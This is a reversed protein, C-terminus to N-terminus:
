SEALGREGRGPEARRSERHRDIWYAWAVALWISLGSIKIAMENPPPPGFVAGLWVASMFIVLAWLAYNGIRDKARTERLYIYLGGFFLVLEAAVTGGVSNWLGLGYKQPWWPSLPM